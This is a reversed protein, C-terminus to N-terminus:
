HGTDIRGTLTPPLERTVPVDTLNHLYLDVMVTDGGQVPNQPPALVMELDASGAVTAMLMTLLVVACQVCRKM